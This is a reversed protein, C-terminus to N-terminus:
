QLIRWEYIEYSVVDPIRTVVKWIRVLSSIASTMGKNPVSYFSHLKQLMRMKTIFIFNCTPKLMHVKDERPFFIESM